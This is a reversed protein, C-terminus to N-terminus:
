VRGIHELSGVERPIGIGCIGRCDIIPNLLTFLTPPPGGVGRVFLRPLYLIQLSVDSHSGGGIHAQHYSRGSMWKLWPQLFSDRMYMSGNLLRSLIMSTMYLTAQGAMGNSGQVRKEHRM